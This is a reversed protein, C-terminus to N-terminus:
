QVLSLSSIAIIESDGSIKPVLIGTHFFVLESEDNIEESVLFALYYSYIGTEKDFTLKHKVEKLKGSSYYVCFRLLLTYNEYDFQELEESVDLDVTEFTNTLEEISNIIVVRQLFGWGASDRDDGLSFPAADLSEIIPINETRPEINTAERCSCAFIVLVCSIFVKKM